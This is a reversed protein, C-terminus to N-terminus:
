RSQCHYHNNVKHRTSKQAFFSDVTICFSGCKKASYPLPLKTRDRLVDCLTAQFLEGDIECLERWCCLILSERVM